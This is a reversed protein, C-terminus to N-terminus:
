ENNTDELVIGNTRHIVVDAIPHKVSSGSETLIFSNDAELVEIGSVFRYKAASNKIHEHLNSAVIKLCKKAQKMDTFAGCVKVDPGMFYNSYIHKVVVFVATSPFLYESTEVTCVGDNFCYKTATGDENGVQLYSGDLVVEAIAPLVIHEYSIDQNEVEVTVNAINGYIDYHLTLGLAEFAADLKQEIVENLVMERTASGLHEKQDFLMKRLCDFLQGFSKRSILIQGALYDSRQRM